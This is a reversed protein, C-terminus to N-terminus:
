RPSATRSAEVPRLRPVSGTRQAPMPVREPLPSFVYCPQPTDLVEVLPIAPDTRADLAPCRHFRRGHAVLWYLLAAEAADRAPLRDTTVSILGPSDLHFHGSSTFRLRGLLWVERDSPLRPAAASSLHAAMDACWGHRNVWFREGNQDHALTLGVGYPAPHVHLVRGVVFQHASTPRADAHSPAYLATAMPRQRIHLVSAASLLAARVAAYTRRGRMRPSWRTLGALEWLLEITANPSFHPFPPTGLPEPSVVIHLADGSRALATGSYHRLPDILPDPSYSPCSLAHHHTRRPLNALFPRGQRHRILMEVGSPTCRCVLRQGAHATLLQPNADLQARTTVAGDAFELPLDHRLFRAM